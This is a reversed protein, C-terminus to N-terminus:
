GAKITLNQEKEDGFDTVIIEINKEIQIKFQACFLNKMEFYDVEASEIVKNELDFEIMLDRVTYAEDTGFDEDLLENKEHASHVSWHLVQEM